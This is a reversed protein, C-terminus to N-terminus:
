GLSRLLLGQSGLQVLKVEDPSLNVENHLNIGLIVGQNNILDIHKELCEIFAQSRNVHHETASVHLCQSSLGFLPLLIEEGESLYNFLPDVALLLPNIKLVDESGRIDLLLQWGLRV